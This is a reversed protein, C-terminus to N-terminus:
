DLQFEFPIAVRAPVSVPGQKAPEFRCNCAAELAAKEMSPTVDSEAISAAVVKGKENVEVLVMVTGEIGAQRSLMPYVPPAWLILVPAKDFPVFCGATRSRPRMESPPPFDLPSTEPLEIEDGNEAPVPSFFHPPTVEKPLPPITIDPIDKVVIPEDPAAMAYPKFEFPPFFLFLLVHFSVAAVLAYRLRTSYSAKPAEGPNSLATFM